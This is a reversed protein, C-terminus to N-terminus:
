EMAIRLNNVDRTLQVHFQNGIGDIPVDRDILRQILDQYRQLKTGPGDGGETGYENIFLKVPRVAGEAAFDVNFAEDAYQFALDIFEEGLINYWSSTRLGNSATAANDAVVENVVDFAVLRNTPSGFEGHRDALYEAINYIHDRMRDRLLQKDEENAASLAQGGETQFFWSPVQSHWVLVHGYVQGGNEYAWDMIADAAANSTFQAGESGAFKRDSGYWSEPKMANEPTASNFERTLVTEAETGALTSRQEIAVGVPYDLTEKLTGPAVIPSGARTSAIMVDDLYFDALTNGVAISLTTNTAVHTYPVKINKFTGPM